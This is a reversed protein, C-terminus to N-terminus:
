VIQEEKIKKMRRQQKKVKKIARDLQLKSVRMLFNQGLM